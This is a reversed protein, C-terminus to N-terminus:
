SPIFVSQYAQNLPDYYIKTDVSIANTDYYENGGMGYQRYLTGAIKFQVWCRTNDTGDRGTVLILTGNDYWGNNSATRPIATNDELKIMMTNYGYIPATFAYGKSTGGGTVMPFLAM